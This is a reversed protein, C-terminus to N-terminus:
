RKTQLKAVSNILQILPILLDNNIPLDRKIPAERNYGSKCQHLNTFRTIGQYITAENLVKEITELYPGSHLHMKCYNECPGYMMQLIVNVCQSVDSVLAAM